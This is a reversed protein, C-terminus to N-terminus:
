SQRLNGGGPTPPSVSPPTSNVQFIPLFPAFRAVASECFGNRTPASTLLILARFFLPMLGIFKYLQSTPRKHLMTPILKTNVVRQPSQSRRTASANNPSHLCQHSCIGSPLNTKNLSVFYAALVPPKRVFVLLFSFCSLGRLAVM